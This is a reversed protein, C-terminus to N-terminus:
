LVGETNLVRRVPEALYVGARLRQRIEFVCGAFIPLDVVAELIDECQTISGAGMRWKPLGPRLIEVAYRPAPTHPQAPSHSNTM